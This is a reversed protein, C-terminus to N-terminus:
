SWLDPELSHIGLQMRKIFQQYFRKFDWINGHVRKVSVTVLGELNKVRELSINMKLFKDVKSNSSDRIVISSGDYGYNFLRGFKRLYLLQQYLEKPYKAVTTLISTKEYVGENLVVTFKFSENKSKIYYNMEGLVLEIREGLTKPPLTSISRSDLPGSHFNLQNRQRQAEKALESARIIAATTAKQNM